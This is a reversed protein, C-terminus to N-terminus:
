SSAGHQEKQQEMWARVEEAIFHVVDAMPDEKWWRDRGRNISDELTGLDEFPNEKLDMLAAHDADALPTQKDTPRVIRNAYICEVATSYVEDDADVWKGDEYTVGKYPRLRRHTQSM